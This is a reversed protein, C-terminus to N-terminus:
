FLDLQEGDSDKKKNLGHKEFDILELRIKDIFSSKSTKIKRNFVSMSNSYSLYLNKKARTM